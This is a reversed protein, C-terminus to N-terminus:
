NSVPHTLLRRPQADGRLHGHIYVKVHDLDPAARRYPKVQQQLKSQAAPVEQGPDSVSDATTLQQQVPPKSQAAPVEQEPDSVSDATTLQQQVPPKGHAPHQSDAATERQKAQLQVPPKSQAPVEQLDSDALGQWSDGDDLQSDVVDSETCIFM